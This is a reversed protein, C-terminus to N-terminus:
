PACDNRMAAVSAGAAAEVELVVDDARMREWGTNVTACREWLREGSATRGLIRYTGPPVHAWVAFAVLGISAEAELDPHGRGASDFYYPGAVDAVPAGVSDLLEFVTGEMSGGAAGVAVAVVVGLRPSPGLMEESAVGILDALARAMASSIIGYSYTAREEMTEYFWRAPIYQEKAMQVTVERRAPLSIDAYGHTDTSVCGCGREGLVQCVEAGELPLSMNVFDTFRLTYTVAPGEFCPAEDTGCGSLSAALVALLVSRLFM